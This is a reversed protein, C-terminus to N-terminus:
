PTSGTARRQRRRVSRAILGSYVVAAGGLVAIIVAGILREQRTLDPATSLRLIALLLLGLLVSLVIPAFRAWAVFRPGPLASTVGPHRQATEVVRSPAIADVAACAKAGRRWDLPDVELRYGYRSLVSREGDAWLEIASIDDPQVTTHGRSRGRRVVSAGREGVILRAGALGAGATTILGAQFPRGGISTRDVPSERLPTVDALADNSPAIVLVTDLLRRLAHSADAVSATTPGGPRETAPSASLGANRWARLMAEGLADQGPRAHLADLAAVLEAESPGNHLRRLQQAAAAMENTHPGRALLRTTTHEGAAGLRRRFARIAGQEPTPAVFCSALAQVLIEDALRDEPQFTWAFTAGDAVLHAPTTIIPENAPEPPTVDQPLDELVRASVSNVGFPVVTLANM